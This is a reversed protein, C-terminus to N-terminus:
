ATTAIRTIDAGRASVEVVFYDGPEPQEEDFRAAVRLAQEVNDLLCYRNVPIEGAMGNCSLPSCEFGASSGVPM